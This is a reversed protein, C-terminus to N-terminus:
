NKKKKKSYREREEKWYIKEVEKRCILVFRDRARVSTVQQVRFENVHWESVATLYDLSLPFYAVWFSFLYVWTHTHTTIPQLARLSCAWWWQEDNRKVQDELVIKQCHQGLSNRWRITWIFGMGCGCVFSLVRSISWESQRPCIIIPRPM